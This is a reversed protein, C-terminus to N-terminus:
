VELVQFTVTHVISGDSNLRGLEANFEEPLQLKVAFVGYGYKYNANWVEAIEALLTRGTREFNDLYQIEDIFRLKGDTQSKYQDDQYNALNSLQRMEDLTMVAAISWVFKPSHTPGNIQAVGNISRQRLEAYGLRGRVPAGDATWRYIRLSPIPSTAFNTSSGGAIGITLDGIAM